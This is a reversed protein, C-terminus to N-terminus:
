FDNFSLRVCVIHILQNHVCMNQKNTQRVDFEQGAKQQRVMFNM